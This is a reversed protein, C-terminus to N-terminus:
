CASGESAKDVLAVAKNLHEFFQTGTPSSNARTLEAYAFDPDLAVAKDFHQLSDQALLKEALDRGQLFERRAEESKTSIPIKGSDSSASASRGADSSGTCATWTAACLVIAALLFHMSDKRRM